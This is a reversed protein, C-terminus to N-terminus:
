NDSCSNEEIATFSFRDLYNRFECLCEINERAIFEIPTVGNLAINNSRMYADWRAKPLLIEISKRISILLCIRNLVQFPIKPHKGQSLRKMWLEIDSSSKIALIRVQEKVSLEWLETMKVFFKLGAEIQQRSIRTKPDYIDRM